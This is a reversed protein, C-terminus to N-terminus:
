NELEEKMIEKAEDKTIEKIELTYPKSEGFWNEKLIYYKNKYSLIYTSDPISFLKIKDGGFIVNIQNIHFLDLDQKLNEEAEKIVLNTKIKRKKINKEYMNMIAKELEEKDKKIESEKENKMEEKIEKKLDEITM